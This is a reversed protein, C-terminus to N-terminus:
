RTSPLRFAALWARRLDGVQTADRYAGVRALDAEVRKLRAILQDAENDQEANSTHAQLTIALEAAETRWEHIRRRRSEIEWALFGAGAVVGFLGLGYLVQARVTLASSATLLTLAATLMAALLGGLIVLGVLPIPERTPSGSPEKEETPAM